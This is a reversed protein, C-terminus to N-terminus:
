HLAAADPDCGRMQMPPPTPLPESGPPDQLPPVDGDRDPGDGPVPDYIPVPTPAPIPEPMQAQM